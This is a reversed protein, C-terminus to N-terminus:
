TTMFVWLGSLRAAVARGDISGDFLVRPLALAELGRRCPGRTTTWASAFEGAQLIEMTEASYSDPSGFPYAFHRVPAGLMEELRAKSGLIEDEADARSLRSLYPHTRTHGGFTVLGQMTRMQDWTLPRYRRMRDPPLDAGALLEAVMQDRAAIAQENLHRMMAVYAPERDAGLAFEGEGVRVVPADVTRIFTKVRNFWLPEGTDAPTTPVFVTAPAQYRELLPFLEALIQEYGDDFTIAVSNPPPPEGGAAWAVCADLPVIHFRRRLAQLHSEFAAPAIHHYNLVWPDRRGPRLRLWAALAGSHWLAGSYTSKIANKVKQM